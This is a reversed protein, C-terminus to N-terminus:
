EDKIEYQKTKCIGCQGMKKLPCYKTFLLPARGYVIMELAPLGDNERQYADIMQSIQRKNLEYSITVRK